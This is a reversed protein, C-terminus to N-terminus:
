GRAAANIDDTKKCAWGYALRKTLQVPLCCLKLNLKHFMHQDWAGFNTEQRPKVNYTKKCARHVGPAKEASGAFLMVKIPILVM